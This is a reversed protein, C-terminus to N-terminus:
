GCCFEVLVLLLLVLLVLLLVFQHYPLPYQLKPLLLDL